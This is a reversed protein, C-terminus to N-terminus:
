YFQNEFNLLGLLIGDGATGTLIIRGPQYDKHGTVARLM